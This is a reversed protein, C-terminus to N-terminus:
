PHAVPRSHYQNESCIQIDNGTNKKKKKTTSEEATFRERKTGSLGRPFRERTISVHWVHWILLFFSGEPPIKRHNKKKSPQKWVIEITSGVSSVLRLELGLVESRSMKIPVCQGGDSTWIEFITIQRESFDGFKREPHSFFTKSKKTSLGQM